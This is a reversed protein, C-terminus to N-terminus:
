ENIDVSTGIKECLHKLDELILQKTRYCQFDRLVEFQKNNYNLHNFGV